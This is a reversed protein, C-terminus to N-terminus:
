EPLEPKDFREFSVEERNLTVTERFPTKEEVRTIHIEETVVWRREIRLTEEVIPVILTDGTQIVPQPGDVQRDVKVRKVEVRQKSLEREILEEHGTVRKVIRVGGTSVPVADVHLHEAIVPIVREEEDGPNM